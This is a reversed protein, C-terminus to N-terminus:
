LATGQHDYTLLRSKKKRHLNPGIVINKNSQITATQFLHASYKKYIYMYIEMHRLSDETILGAPGSRLGHWLEPM